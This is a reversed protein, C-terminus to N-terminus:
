GRNNWGGDIPWPSPCRFNPFFSAIAKNYSNRARSGHIQLWKPSSILAHPPCISFVACELGHHHNSLTRRQGTNQRRWTNSFIHFIIRSISVPHDIPWNQRWTHSNEFWHLCRLSFPSWFISLDIKHLWTVLQHFFARSHGLLRPVSQDINWPRSDMSAAWSPLGRLTCGLVMHTAIWAGIFHAPGVTSSRIAHHAM